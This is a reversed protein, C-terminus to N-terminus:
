FLGVLDVLWGGANPALDASLLSSVDSAASAAASADVAASVLAEKAAEHTIDGAITTMANRITEVTGNESLLGESSVTRLGDPVADVLYRVPGDDLNYGNLFADVITSPGNLLDSFALSSDGNQLADVIDQGVGAFALEAAHPAFMPAHLLETFWEPAAFNGLIPSAESVPADPDIFATPALVNDLNNAISQAIEFFGNDLPRLVDLPTQNLYQAISTVADYFDGSALDSSANSLVSPVSQLADVLNTGAREAATAFDSLYDLQNAGIASLIPTPDQALEPGINELNAFTNTFVDALSSVPFEQDATLATAAGAIDAAVDEVSALQVARTQIDLAPAGLPVVAILGAGAVAVGVSVYPRLSLEM